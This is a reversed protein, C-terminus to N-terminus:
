DFEIKVKTNGIKSLMEELIESNEVIDAELTNKQKVMEDLRKSSSTCDNQENEKQLELDRLLNKSRSVIENLREESKNKETITNEYEIVMEQLRNECFDVFDDIERKEKEELNVNQKKLLAIMEWFKKNINALPYKSFHKFFEFLRRDESHLIKRIPRRGKRLNGMLDSDIQRMKRDVSAVHRKAEVTEENDIESQAAQLKATIKELKSNKAEIEKELLAIAEQLDDKKEFAEQLERHKKLATRCHKLVRDEALLESSAKELNKFRKLLSNLAGITERGNEYLLTRRQIVSPITIVSHIAQAADDYFQGFSSLDSRDMSGIGNLLDGITRTFRKEGNKRLADLEKKVEDLQEMFEDYRKILLSYDRSTEGSDRWRDIYSEVESFHVSEVVEPRNGKFTM